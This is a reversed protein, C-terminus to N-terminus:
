FPSYADDDIEDGRDQAYRLGPLYKFEVMDRDTAAHTSEGSLNDVVDLLRYDPGYLELAIQKTVGIESGLPTPIRDEQGAREGNIYTGNRSGMDRVYFMRDQEAYSIQCHHPSIYPQDIVLDCDPARGVVFKMSKIFVQRLGVEEVGDRVILQAIGSANQQPRDEVVIVESTPASTKPAPPAPNSSPPPPMVPAHSLAASSRRQPRRRFMVVMLLVLAAVVFFINAGLLLQTQNPSFGSITIMDGTPPPADAPNSIPIIGGNNDEPLPAVSVMGEAEAEGYLGAQDTLTATFRLATDGANIQQFPLLSWALVIIGDDDPQPNVLQIVQAADDSETHTISLLINQLPREIQDPFIIQLTVSQTDSGFELVGADNIVPQLVVELDDPDVFSIQPAELGLTYDLELAAQQGDPWTASLSATQVADASVQEPRFEVTYRTRSAQIVDYLVKLQGLPQYSGQGVFAGQQNNVFIGGGYRALERYVEIQNDRQDHAHVVHLPIGAEVFDAGLLVEQPRNLYSGVFIAQRPQDPQAPLSSLDSLAANLAGAIDYLSDGNKLAEIIGQAEELTTARLTSFRTQAASDFRVIYFTVADGLQYYHEFYAYLTDQIRPIDSGSGTDIIIALHLPLDARSTTSWNEVTPLLDFTPAALVDSSSAVNSIVFDAQVSVTQVDFTPNSLLTLQPPDAGQALVGSLGFFLSGLLCVMLLRKLGIQM